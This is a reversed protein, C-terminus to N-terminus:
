HSPLVSAECDSSLSTQLESMTQFNSNPGPINWKQHSVARGMTLWRTLDRKIPVSCLFVFLYASKISCNAFFFLFSVFEFQGSALAVTCIVSIQIHRVRKLININSHIFTQFYIRVSDSVYTIFVLSSRCEAFIWSRYVKYGQLTWLHRGWSYASVKSLVNM